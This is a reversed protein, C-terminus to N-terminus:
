TPQSIEEINEKNPGEFELSKSANEEQVNNELPEGIDNDVSFINNKPDLTQNMFFLM